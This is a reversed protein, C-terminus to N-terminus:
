NDSTQKIRAQGFIGKFEVDVAYKLIYSGEGRSIAETIERIEQQVSEATAYWGLITTHEGWFTVKDVGLLLYHPEGKAPAVIKSSKVAHCVIVNANDFTPIAIKGGPAYVVPKPTEKEEQCVNSEENLLYDLSVKLERSIILLKETEPYGNGSEWKSVAQRSVNLLEALEEQTINREKRILKLNEAFSMSQKTHHIKNKYRM